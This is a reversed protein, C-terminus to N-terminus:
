DALLEAIIGRGLFDAYAALSWGQRMVLLECLEPATFAFPVDGAAEVGLGPRLHDTLACANHRMRELRQQDLEERLRAAAPDSAAAERVLLAVPSALPAVEMSLRAWGAIVTRPDEKAGTLSDSREEAPVPGDGALARVWLARVLGPKGGFAKYVMEASVGADAAVAAVTTAAYGDSAFHAAAAELVQTRRREAAVRRASSDYPRARKVTSRSM